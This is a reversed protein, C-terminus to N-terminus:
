PTRTGTGPLRRTRAMEAFVSASQKPTRRMTERDVAILGFEKTYGEAWEFNDWATWHLYGIVDAGADIADVVANLHDLLFRPRLRDDRDAIGNETVLIPLHFTRWLNLLARTLAPPDITWGFASVPLHPDSVQRALFPRTIDFTVRDECYYNVGLYDLSGRLGPVRENSGIPPLLRGGM